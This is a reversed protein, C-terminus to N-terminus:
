IHILSLDYTYKKELRVTPLTGLAPRAILELAKATAEKQWTARKKNRNARLSLAPPDSRLGAAWSGYQGIISPPTDPLLMDLTESSAPNPIDSPLMSNVFPVTAVLGVSTKVFNRRTTLNNEKKM